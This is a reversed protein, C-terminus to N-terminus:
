PGTKQMLEHMTIIISLKILINCIKLLYKVFNRKQHNDAFLLLIKPLFRVTMNEYSSLDNTDIKWKPTYNRGKPFFIVLEARKQAKSRWFVWLFIRHNWRKCWETTGDVQVAFNRRRRDTESFQLLEMIASFLAGNNWCFFSFLCEVRCEGDKTELFPLMAGEYCRLWWKAIFKERIYCWVAWPERGFETLRKQCGPSVTLLDIGM